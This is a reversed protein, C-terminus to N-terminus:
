RSSARRWSASREHTPAAAGGVGTTALLVRRRSECRRSRGCSSDSLGRSRARLSRSSRSSKAASPRAPGREAETQEHIRWLPRLRPQLNPLGDLQEEHALDVARGHAARYPEGAQAGRAGHDREHFATVTLRQWTALDDGCSWGATTEFDRVAMALRHVLQPRHTRGGRETMAM